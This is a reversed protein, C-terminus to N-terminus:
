PEKEKEPKLSCAIEQFNQSSLLQSLNLPFLFLLNTSHTQSSHSALWELYLAPRQAWTSKGLINKQIPMMPLVTQGEKGAISHLLLSEWSSVQKNVCRNVLISHFYCFLVARSICVSPYIYAQHFLNLHVSIAPTNCNCNLLYGLTIFAFSPNGKTQHENGQTCNEGSSVQVLFIQTEFHNRQRNLQRQINM